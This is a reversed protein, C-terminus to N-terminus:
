GCHAFEGLFTRRLRAQVSALGVQEGFLTAVNFPNKRDCYFARHNISTNVPPDPMKGTFKRVFHSKHAQPGANKRKFEVCVPEQSMGMHTEGAGAQVFHGQGLEVWLM